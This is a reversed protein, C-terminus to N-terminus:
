FLSGSLHNLNGMFRSEVGWLTQHRRRRPMWCLCCTPQPHQRIIFSLYLSQEGYVLKMVVTPRKSNGSGWDAGLMHSIQEFVPLCEKHWWPLHSSAVGWTQASKSGHINKELLLTWLIKSTHLLAGGFQLLSSHQLMPLNPFSEESASLVPCTSLM